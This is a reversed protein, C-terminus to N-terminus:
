IGFNLVTYKRKYKAVYVTREIQQEGEKESNFEINLDVEYIEKIKDYDILESTDAGLQRYGDEAEALAEEAKSESLKRMSIVSAKASCKGYNEKQCKEAFKRRELVCEDINKPVKDYQYDEAEDAFFEEASKESEKFSYQIFWKIQTNYPILAYRDMKDVDGELRAASYLAAVKDPKPGSVCAASFLMGATILLILFVKKM